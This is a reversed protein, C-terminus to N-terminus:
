RFMVIEFKNNYAKTNYMGRLVFMAHIHIDKWWMISQKVHWSGLGKGGKVDFHVVYIFNVFPHFKTIHIFNSGYFVSIIYFFCSWISSM